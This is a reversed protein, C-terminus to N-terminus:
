TVNHTTVGGSFQVFKKSSSPSPRVSQLSGSQKATVALALLGTERAHEDGGLAGFFYTGLSVGALTYSAGLQSVRGSWRTQHTTNPLSDAIKRDSAILVATM